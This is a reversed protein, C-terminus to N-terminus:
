WFAYRGRDLAQQGVPGREGGTQAEEGLVVGPDPVGVEDLAGEALGAAAGLDDAPQGALGAAQGEHPGHEIPGGATPASEGHGGGPEAEQVVQASGQEVRGGREVRVVFCSVLLSVIM